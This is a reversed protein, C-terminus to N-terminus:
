SRRGRQSRRIPTPPCRCVARQYAENLATRLESFHVGHCPAALTLTADTWGFAPLGSVGRLTNVASRLDTVHIGQRDHEPIVTPDTLIMSFTATVSRATSMAVTCTTATGGCAGGWSKFSAQDGPMATLTVEHRRHLEGLLGVWLRNQPASTVTGGASGRISVTLTFVDSPDDGDGRETASCGV